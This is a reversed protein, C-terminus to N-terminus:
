NLLFLQSAAIQHTLSHRPDGSKSQLVMNNRHCKKIRTGIKMIMSVSLNVTKYYNTQDFKQM